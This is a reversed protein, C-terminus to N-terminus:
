SISYAVVILLTYFVSLGFVAQRMLPTVVDNNM